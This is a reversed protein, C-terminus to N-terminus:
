AKLKWPLYSDNNEAIPDNISEQYKIGLDHAVLNGSGKEYVIGIEGKIYFRLAESQCPNLLIEAGCDIIHNKFDEFNSELKIVKRRSYNSNSTYRAKLKVWENM